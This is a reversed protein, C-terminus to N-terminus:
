RAKYREYSNQRIEIAREIGMKKMEDVFKDFNDLPEVGMVFKSFMQAAYANTNTIITALEKSEETTPTLCAPLNHLKANTQSWRNSAEPMQPYAMVQESARPDVAFAGNLKMYQPQMQTFPKGDPNKMIFETVKPYGDVMKYSEGEVGFNYVLSGAESYAFDLWKAAVEVNKCSTMIAASAKPNYLDDAQGSFPTDGAKLVPYTAGVLNFSPNKSKMNDMMKGIVGSLLGVTAGSKDGLMKSEMNKKDSLAFEKEILGEEYWKRFTTLFEKYQPEIPGYKVKGEDNVYFGDSTQYAGVFTDYLSMGSNNVYGTNGSSQTYEAVFPATAGKKDKFAKLTNYWDDITVPLPMNLEDLWDKRIIPGRFVRAITSVRIMPYNYYNGNDTKLQKELAPDETILKKLNPSYKDIAENLPIILKDAIAKEPGGPYESAWNFEVIDPIDGSVLMINFQDREQGQTPHIYKVKVGTQREIEKGLPTEGLNDAIGFLNPNMQSWFKLTYDTKIPYISTPENSPTENGPTASQTASNTPTTNAPQQKQTCGVTISLVMLSSLFISLGKKLYRNM